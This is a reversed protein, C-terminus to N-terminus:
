HASKANPSLQHLLFLASLLLVLAGFQHLLAISLPVAGLVTFVGLLFQVVLAGGVWRLASKQQPRLVLRHSSWLM